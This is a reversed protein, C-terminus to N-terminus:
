VWVAVLQEAESRKTGNTYKLFPVQVARFLLADTSLMSAERVQQRTGPRQNICLAACPLQPLGAGKKKGPTPRNFRQRWWHISCRPPSPGDGTRWAPVFGRRFKVTALAAIGLTLGLPVAQATAPDAHVHALRHAHITLLRRLGAKRILNPASALGSGM